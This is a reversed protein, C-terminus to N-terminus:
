GHTKREAILWKGEVKALEQISFVGKKYGLAKTM